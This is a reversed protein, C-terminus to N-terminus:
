SLVRGQENGREVAERESRFPGVRDEADDPNIWVWHDRFGALTYKKGPIPYVGPPPAPV